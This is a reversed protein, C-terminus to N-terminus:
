LSVKRPLYISYSNMWPLISGQSMFSFVFPQWNIVYLAVETNDFRLLGRIHKFRIGSMVQCFIPRGHAPFYLKETAKGGSRYVGRLLLGFYSEFEEDDLLYFSDGVFRKGQRNTELMITLMM